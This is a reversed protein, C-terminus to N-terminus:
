WFVKEGNFFRIGSYIKVTRKQWSDLCEITITRHEKMNHRAGILKCNEMKVIEGKLTSFEIDFPEDKANMKALADRLLIM